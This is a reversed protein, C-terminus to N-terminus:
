GELFWEQMRARNADTVGLVDRFYDDISGARTRIADFAADLRDGRAGLIEMFRALRQEKPEPKDADATKDAIHQVYSRLWTCGNSLLYDEKITREPVGLASLILASGFGTRDKGATCHIVIPRGESELILRFMTAYRDAFDTAYERYSERQVNYVAVEDLDGAALGRALDTGAHASKPWIGLHHTAAALAPPVRSPNRELEKSSRFDCIAAVDLAALRDMDADTLRSLQGCRFLRKWRVTRGDSTEYGGLDRFNVANDFPLHRQM